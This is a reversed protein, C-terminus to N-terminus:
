ASPGSSNKQRRNITVELAVVRESLEHITKSFDEFKEQVIIYQQELRGYLTHRTERLLEVIDAKTKAAALDQLGLQGTIENKIALRDVDQQAFRSSIWLTILVSTTVATLLASVVGVIIPWLDLAVEAARVTEAASSAPM